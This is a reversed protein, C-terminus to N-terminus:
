TRLMIEYILKKKCKMEIANIMQNTGTINRQGLENTHSLIIEKKEKLALISPDAHVM